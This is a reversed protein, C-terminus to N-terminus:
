KLKKKMVKAELRAVEDALSRFMGDRDHLRLEIIDVRKYWSIIEEQLDAIRNGALVIGIGYVIQIICMGIVVLVITM